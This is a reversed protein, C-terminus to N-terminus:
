KEVEYLVFHKERHCNSCLLDCKDLEKKINDWNNNRILNTMNFEKEKINKHHFDMACPHKSYECKMCKGGLYEICKLKTLQRRKKFALSIRQLNRKRNERIQSLESCFRNSERKPKFKRKCFSCLIEKLNLKKYLKKRVAYINNLRCQYSCFKQNYRIKKYKEGCFLCKDNSM